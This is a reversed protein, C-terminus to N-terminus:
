GCGAGISQIGGDGMMEEYEIGTPQCMEIERDDM